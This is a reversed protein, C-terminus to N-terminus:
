RVLPVHLAVLALTGVAACLGLITAGAVTWMTKKIWAVDEKLVAIDKEAIIIAAPKRAKRVISKDKRM